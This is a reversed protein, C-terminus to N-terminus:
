TTHTWKHNELEKKLMFKNCVGCKYKIKKIFHEKMCPIEIVKGGFYSLIKCSCELITESYVGSFKSNRKYTEEFSKRGGYM